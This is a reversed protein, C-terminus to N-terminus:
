GPKYRNSGFAKLKFEDPFKSNPVANSERFLEASRFTIEVVDDYTFYEWPNLRESSFNTVVSSHTNVKWKFDPNDENKDAAAIIKPLVRSKIEEHNPLKREWVYAGPFQFTTM